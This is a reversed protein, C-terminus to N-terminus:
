GPMKKINYVYKGDDNKKKGCYEQGSKRAEKWENSKWTTTTVQHRKTRKRTTTVNNMNDIHLDALVNDVAEPSDEQDSISLEEPLDEQELVVDPNMVQSLNGEPVEEQELVNYLNGDLILNDETLDEQRPVVDPNMVQSLNGEPVEEHELVNNLNGDLILNNETLDEQEPCFINEAFTVDNITLYEDNELFIDVNETLSLKEVPIGEEQLVVISGTEPVRCDIQQYTKDSNVKASSDITNEDVKSLSGDVNVVFTEPQNDNTNRLALEM